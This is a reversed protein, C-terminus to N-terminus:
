QFIPTIKAKYSYNNLPVTFAFGTAIFVHSSPNLARSGDTYIKVFDSFDKEILDILYNNPNNSERLLSGTSLDISKSCDFFRVEFCFNLSRPHNFKIIERHLDSNNLAFSVLSKKELELTKASSSSIYSNIAKKLSHHRFASIKAVTKDRLFKRRSELPPEGILDLLVNIPTTCMLGM